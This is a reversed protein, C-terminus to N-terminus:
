KNRWEKILLDKLYGQNQLDKKLGDTAHDIFYDERDNLDKKNYIGLEQLEYASSKKIEGFEEIIKALEITVKRLAAIEITKIGKAVEMLNEEEALSSLAGFLRPLDEKLPIALHKIWKPINNTLICYYSYAHILEGHEFVYGESAVASKYESLEWADVNATPIYESSLIYSIPILELINGNANAELMKERMISLRAPSYYYKVSIKGFPTLNYEEDICEYQFLYEVVEKWSIQNGQIYALSRQYWKQFSEEDYIMDIWPLIHFAINDISSLESNIPPTKEYLCSEAYSLDSSPSLIIAEGSKTYSRGARGIFQQIDRAPILEKARRTGCIIVKDIM